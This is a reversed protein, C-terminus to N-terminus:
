ERGGALRIAARMALAATPHLRSTPDAAVSPMSNSYLESCSGFSLPRAVPSPRRAVPPHQPRSHWLAPIGSPSLELRRSLWVAHVAGFLSRIDYLSRVFPQRRVRREVGNPM